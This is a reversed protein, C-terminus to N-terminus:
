TILTKINRFISFIISCSYGPKDVAVGEGIEKDRDSMEITAMYGSLLAWPKRKTPKHQQNTITPQLWTTQPQKEPM